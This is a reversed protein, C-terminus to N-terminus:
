QRDCLRFCTSMHYNNLTEKIVRTMLTSISGDDNDHRKTQMLVNTFVGNPHIRINGVRFIHGCNSIWM